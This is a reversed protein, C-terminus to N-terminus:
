DRDDMSLFEFEFEDDDLLFNKTKRKPASRVTDEEEREDRERM